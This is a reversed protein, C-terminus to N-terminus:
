PINQIRLERSLWKGLSSGQQRKSHQQTPIRKLQSKYSIIYGAIANNAKSVAQVAVTKQIANMSGFRALHRSAINTHMLADKASSRGRVWDLFKVSTSPLLIMSEYFRNVLIGQVVDNSAVVSVNFGSLAAVAKWSDQTNKQLDSGDFLEKADYPDVSGKTLEKVCMLDLMMAVKGVEFTDACIHNKVLGPDQGHFWLRPAGNGFHNDITV